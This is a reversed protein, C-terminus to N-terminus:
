RIVSKLTSLVLMKPMRPLRLVEAGAGAAAQATGDTSADDVVIVPYGLSSVRGVVESITRGEDCAPIIVMVDNM